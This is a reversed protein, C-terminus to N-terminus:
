PGSRDSAGAPENTHAAVVAPGAPLTRSMHCSDCLTRIWTGHQDGHFRPRGAGACAECTREAEAEAAEVLAGAMDAWAGDFEGDDDFRDAVYIRLGGLKPTFEELRYDAALALLQEHLRRLLPHWGPGVQTLRAPIQDGRGTSGTAHTSMGGLTGCAM